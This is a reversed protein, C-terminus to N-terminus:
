FVWHHSLFRFAVLWSGLAVKLSVLVNLPLLWGGSLLSGREGLPLSLGWLSCSVLVLFLLLAGKEAIMLDKEEFRRLSSARRLQLLILGTALSVGAAFGGGPVLHGTLAQASGVLLAIFGGGRVMFHLAPDALLAGMGEDRALNLTVGLVAVSFVLVEFLTDYLRVGLYVVSVANPVGGYCSLLPATQAQLSAGGELGLWLYLVLAAALYIGRM